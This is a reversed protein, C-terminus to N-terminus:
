SVCLSEEMMFEIQKSVCKMSYEDSYGSSPKNPFGLCSPPLKSESEGIFKAWGFDILKLTGNKVMINDLRIDRHIIKNKALDSLITKLQEKWDYPINNQNLHEGCDEIEIIRGDMKYVKPFHPSSINSLIDYENSILDYDLWGTQEKFVNGNSKNVISTCGKWYAHFKGVSHDTPESWGISSEKLSQLLQEVTVDGLHPMYEKSIGNKHHVAHYAIAIRHHIPNPTYFGRSNWERTDLIAKEFDTPYYGDGIHRIDMYIYSDEIPIKMRVRPYKHELKAEPFIEQFHSFDYVLLDLDSHEGLVVEYPLSDWNRLVVYEFNIDNM